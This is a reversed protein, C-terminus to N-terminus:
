PALGEFIQTIVTDRLVANDYNDTILTSVRNDNVMCVFGHITSLIGLAQLAADGKKVINLEQCTEIDKIMAAFTETSTHQLSESSTLLDGSYMVRYYAPHTLAFDVYAMGSAAFQNIPDPPVSAKQKEMTDQLLSFGQEVVAVILQDKDAFHRYPATHSVGARRAVERITLQQPGSDTIIDLAAELLAARLDGHHYNKRATAMIDDSKSYTLLLM